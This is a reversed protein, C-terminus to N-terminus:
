KNGVAAVNVKVKYMKDDLSSRDFAPDEPYKIWMRLRFKKGYAVEGAKVEGYYVTKGNLLPNTTDKLEAYTPIEPKMLEVETENVGDFETLYIKIMDDDLTSGDDKLVVIEYGIDTGTTSASVSFDFYENEKSLLKGDRDLTPVAFDMNIGNGKEEADSYSFIVRGTEIVNNTTGEQFTTFIAVSIGAIVTLTILIIGVIILLKKNKM